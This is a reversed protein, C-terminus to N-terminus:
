KFGKVRYYMRKKKETETDCYGQETLRLWCFLYVSALSAVFGDGRGGGGAHYWACISWVVWQFVLILAM